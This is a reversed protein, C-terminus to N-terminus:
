ESKYMVFNALEIIQKSIRGFTLEQLLKYMHVKYHQTFHTVDSFSHVLQPACYCLLVTPTIRETSSVTTPIRKRGTKFSLCNQKFSFRAMSLPPCMHVFLTQVSIATHSLRTPTPIFLDTSVMYHLNGKGKDTIACLM